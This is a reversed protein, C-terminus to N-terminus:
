NGAPSKMPASVCCRVRNLSYNGSLGESATKIIADSLQASNFDKVTFKGQKDVM